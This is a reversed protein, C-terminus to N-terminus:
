FGVVVTAAGKVVTARFSRGEGSWSGLQVNHPSSVTLAQIVSRLERVTGAEAAAPITPTFVMAFQGNELKLPQSSALADLQRFQLIPIGMTACLRSAELLRSQVDPEYTEYQAVLKQATTAGWFVFTKTEAGPLTHLLRSYESVDGSIRSPVADGDLM